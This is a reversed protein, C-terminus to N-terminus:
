DKHKYNYPLLGLMIKNIMGQDIIRQAFHTNTTMFAKSDLQGVIATLAAQDIFNPLRFARPTDSTDLLTKLETTVPNYVKTVFELLTFQFPSMSEKDGPIHIEAYSVLHALKTDLGTDISINGGVQQAKYMDKLLSYLKLNSKSSYALLLQVRFNREPKLAPFNFVVKNDDSKPDKKLEFSAKLNSDDIIKLGKEYAMWYVMAKTITKSKVPSVELTFPKDFPIPKDATRTNLDYKIYVQGFTQATGFCLLLFLLKKM